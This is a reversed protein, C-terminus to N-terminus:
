HRQLVKTIAIRRAKWIANWAGSSGGYLWMVLGLLRFVSSRLLALEPKGSRRLAETELYRFYRRLSSCCCSTKEIIGVGCALPMAKRMTVELDVM